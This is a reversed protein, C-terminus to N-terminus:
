SSRLFDEVNYPKDFFLNRDKRNSLDTKQLGHFGLEKTWVNGFKVPMPPRQLAGEISFKSAVEEPAFRIGKSKLYDWYTRCIHHDEPHFEQIALDTALMELLKKSRLSFWWNWVNNDDQYWWPAGIYDYQLFADDWAQPDLIFWDYQIILVYDTNVYKHVKKIMFESYAEISNINAKCIQVGDKATYEKDTVTILKKEAFDFYHSCIEFAKLLRDKKHDVWLLTINDFKRKM